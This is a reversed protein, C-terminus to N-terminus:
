GHMGRMWAQGIFWDPSSCWQALTRNHGQMLVESVYLDPVSYWPGFGPDATITLPNASLIYDPM